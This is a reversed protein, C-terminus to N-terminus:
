LFMDAMKQAEVEQEPTLHHKLSLLVKEVDSRMMSFCLSCDEDLGGVAGIRNITVLVEKLAEALKEKAQKDTGSM